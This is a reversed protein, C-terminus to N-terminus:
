RLDGVLTRDHFVIGYTKAAIALGRLEPTKSSRDREWLRYFTDLRSLAKAVLFSPCVVMTM